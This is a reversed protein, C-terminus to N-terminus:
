PQVRVEQLEEVQLDLSDSVIVKVLFRYLEQSLLSQVAKLVQFPPFSALQLSLLLVHAVHLGDSSFHRHVLALNVLRLVHVQELEPDNELLFVFDRFSYFVNSESTEYFDQFFLLIRSVVLM